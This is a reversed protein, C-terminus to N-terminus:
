HPLKWDDVRTRNYVDVLNQRSKFTTDYYTRYWEVMANDFIEVDNIAKAAVHATFECDLTLDDALEMIQIATKRFETMNNARLHARCADLLQSINKMRVSMPPSQIEGEKPGLEEMRSKLAKPNDAMTVVSGSVLAGTNVSIMKFAAAERGSIEYRQKGDELEAFAEGYHAVEDRAAELIANSLTPGYMEAKCLVTALSGCLDTVKTLLDADEKRLGSIITLPKKVTTM